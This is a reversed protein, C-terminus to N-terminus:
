LWPLVVIAVTVTYDHWAAGPLRILAGSHRRDHDACTLKAAIMAKDFSLSSEYPKDASLIYDSFLRLRVIPGYQV